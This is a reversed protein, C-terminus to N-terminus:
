VRDRHARQAAWAICRVLSTSENGTLLIAAGGAGPRVRAALVAQSTDEGGDHAVHGLRVLERFLPLAVRTEVQGVPEVAVDVAELEADDIMSAGVLLIADDAGDATDECWDVAERRSAFRYGAVVVRGDPALAAAAATAGDGLDDELALVVPAEPDPAVDPDLCADWALATLRGDVRETGTILPEDATKAAITIVNPWRNLWQADFSAIPDPEEPDISEGRLVKQLAATVLRERQASWHPSAARWALPNRRDLDAPASWELILRHGPHTLEAIASARRELVLASAKRHATSFLGLQPAVQEVLTPEIAEDVTVAPVDWAEDVLALGPSLGYAATKAKIVWRSGTQYPGTSVGPNLNNRNAELGNQEAWAWVPLLVERVIGLERGTHLILQEGWRQPAKLLRQGGLARISVSKGVQRATSEIFEGWVLLGDADHELIRYVALRQWWRLRGGKTMRAHAELAEPGYTGTARPHPYTMLRPWVAGEPVKRLRDLWPAADWVPDDPGPVAFTSPDRDTVPAALTRTAPSASGRRRGLATDVTPPSPPRVQANGDLPLSLSLNGSGPDGDRGEGQFLHDGSETVPAGRAVLARALNLVAREERTVRGSHQDSHPKCEARLNRPRDCGGRARGLVHGAITAPAGCVETHGDRGLVGSGPTPVQCRRRDRTLVNQRITRWAHPDATIASPQYPHVNGCGCGHVMGDRPVGLQEALADLDLTSV